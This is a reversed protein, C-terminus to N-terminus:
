TFVVGILVLGIVVGMLFVGILAYSAACAVIM